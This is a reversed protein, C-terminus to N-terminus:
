SATHARQAYCARRQQLFHIINIYNGSITYNKHVSCRGVDVVNTAGGSKGSNDKHSRKM